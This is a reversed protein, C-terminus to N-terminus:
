TIVNITGQLECHPNTNNDFFFTLYYNGSPLNTWTQTDAKGIAFHKTGKDKDIDWNIDQTLTVKLESLESCGEPVWNSDITVAVSGGTASFVRSKLYRHKISITSNFSSQQSLKVDQSPASSTDQHDQAENCNEKKGPDIDDELIIADEVLQPKTNSQETSMENLRNIDELFDETLVKGDDEDNKVYSPKDKENDNNTILLDEIKQTFDENTEEELDDLKKNMAIAGFDYTDAMKMSQSIQDFIAHREKLKNKFDEDSENAVGKDKNKLAEAPNEQERQKDIAKKQNLIARLDEEFKIDADRDLEIPAQAEQTPSENNQIDQQDNQVTEEQVEQINTDLSQSAFFPQKEEEHPEPNEHQAEFYTNADSYANSISSISQPESLIVADEIHDYKNSKQPALSANNEIPKANNEISVHDTCLSEPLSLSIPQNDDYHSVVVASNESTKKKPEQVHEQKSIVAQKDSKSTNNTSLSMIHHRYSKRM